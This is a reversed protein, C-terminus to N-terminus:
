GPRHLIKPLFNVKLLQLAGPFKNKVLWNWFHDFETGSIPCFNQGILTSTRGPLETAKKCSTTKKMSTGQQKAQVVPLNPNVETYSGTFNKTTKYSNNPKPDIINFEKNEKDSTFKM